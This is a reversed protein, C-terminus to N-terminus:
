DILRNEELMERGEWSLSVYDVLMCCDFVDHIPMNLLYFMLVNVLFFRPTVITCMWEECSTTTALCRHEMVKFEVKFTRNAVMTAKLVLIGKADLVHFGKNEMHTKYDKELLQGISLLNCKIGLIYLVDKILSHGGDRRMILVDGIGDVM